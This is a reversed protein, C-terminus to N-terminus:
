WGLGDHPPDCSYVFPRLDFCSKLTLSNAEEKENSSAPRQTSEPQICPDTRNTKNLGIPGPLHVSLALRLSIEGVVLGHSHVIDSHTSM